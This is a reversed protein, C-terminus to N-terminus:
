PLMGDTPEFAADATGPAVVNGFKALWNLPSEGRKFATYDDLIKADRMADREELAVKLALYQEFVRMGSPRGVTIGPNETMLDRIHWSWLAGSRSVDVM